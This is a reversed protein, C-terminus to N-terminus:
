RFSGDITIDEIMTEQYAAKKHQEIAEKMEQLEISVIRGMKQLRSESLVIESLYQEYLTVDYHWLHMRTGYRQKLRDAILLGEPDFDGMYYFSTDESMKDLLMWVAMKLQGYGCILSANPYKESLYALVAPNEVIYVCDNPSRVVSLKGITQLTLKMIEGTQVFGEIGPHATGNEMYGHLGYALVDNSLADRLIGATYYVTNKFEAKAPYDMKLYWQLFPWLFHELESGEDLAHPNGTIKAAYVPLLEKNTQRTIVPLHGIVQSLQSLVRSLKEPNAHYQQMLQQYGASKEQLIVTLWEGMPTKQYQQLQHDFYQMRAVEEQQLQEKRAQMPEGFYAELIERWELEAFRSDKLAKEMKAASITVSKTMAFDKQFFGGLERKEQMSLSPLTVSGGLHGLRIYKERIKEFLREYIRREKFYHVCEDLLEKNAM